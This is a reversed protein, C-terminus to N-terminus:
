AKGGTKGADTAAASAATASTSAAPKTEVVQGAANARKDAPQPIEEAAGAALAGDLEARTVPVESGAKFAKQSRPTGTRTVSINHTHDKNFKAWLTM